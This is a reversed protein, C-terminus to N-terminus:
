NDLYYSRAVFVIDPFTAGGNPADSIALLYLGNSAPTATGTVYDIQFDLKLNILFPSRKSNADAQFYKDFLVKNHKRIDYEKHAFIGRGTGVYANDLVQQPGTPGVGVTMSGTKHQIVMLRVTSGLAISSDENITGRIVCRKVKISDGDRENVSDGASPM